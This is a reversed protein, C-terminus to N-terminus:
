LAKANQGVGLLIVGIVVEGTSDSPTTKPSTITKQLPQIVVTGTATSADVVVIRELTGSFRSSGLTSSDVDM